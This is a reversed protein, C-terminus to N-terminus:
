DTSLVSDNRVKRLLFVAYLFNPLVLLMPITWRLHEHLDLPAGGGSAGASVTFTGLDWLAHYVVPVWLSGTRILLAIMVTGSMAAAVAQVAAEALQGTTIVNVVHVGGFLLTTVIIAPWLRLRSRLGQFLVGRFMWEESLGVMLTNLLVFMLTGLPPLGLFAGLMAFLLLYLTPFWLLKLSGPPRPAVFKLDRWRMVLTVLLLVGIAMALNWSIGHSVTEVLPKKSGDSAWRMGFMTVLVWAVGTLLAVQLRKRDRNASDNMTSNLM